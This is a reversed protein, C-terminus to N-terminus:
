KKPKIINQATDILASPIAARRPKGGTAVERSMDLLEEYGSVCPPGCPDDGRANGPADVDATNSTDADSGADTDPETPQNHQEYGQPTITLTTVFGVAEDHLKLKVTNGTESAVRCANGLEKFATVLQETFGNTVVLPGFADRLENDTFPEERFPPPTKDFQAYHKKLHNYIGQRNKAAEGKLGGRAGFVVAMAARVGNWVAKLGSANHHPLKYDDKNAGKNEYFTCIQKLVPVDAAKVQAPGDWATGTPAVGHDKYPIVAARNEAEGDSSSTNADRGPTTEIQADAEDTGNGEANDAEPGPISVFTYQVGRVLCATEGNSQAQLARAVDNGAEASQAMAEPDAGIPVLSLDRQKYETVVGNLRVKDADKIPIGHKSLLKLMKDPDKERKEGARYWGISVMRMAKDIGYLTWWQEALDSTAFKVTQFRGKTADFEDEVVNGVVIPMSNDDMMWHYPVVIPNRMFEKARKKGALPLIILNDSALKASQALFKITRDDTNIAHAVCDDDNRTLAELNTGQEAM